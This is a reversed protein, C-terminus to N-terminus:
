YPVIACSFNYLEDKVTLFNAVYQISLPAMPLSVYNMMSPWPEAEAVRPPKVPKDSIIYYGVIM